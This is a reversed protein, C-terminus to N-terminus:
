ETKVKIPICVGRGGKEASKKREKREIEHEKM